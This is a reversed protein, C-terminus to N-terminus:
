LFQSINGDFRRLIHRAAVELALPNGNYFDILTKWDEDSGHFNTNYARGIDYFIARGAARDVGGLMLSRVLRVGELDEVDQPKVRSTLLLCSQHESEGMRRLFDGYGEYGSLYSGARKGSQLISEVNDLILLCRRQKLHHLLQTVLGDPTTAFQTERDDSVFEILETLLTEPPPANLLRRWILCEFEGRVRRALQLSLDTKGIGGRVLRTKGIGAFGVISILRCGEELIWQELTALEQQRGHFIPVDPAEGWDEKLCNVPQAVEDPDVGLVQCFAQFSRDRIM